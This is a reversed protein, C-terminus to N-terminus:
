EMYRCAYDQNSQVALTQLNLTQQDLWGTLDGWEEARPCPPPPTPASELPVEFYLQKGAIRFSGYYSLHGTSKRTQLDYAEFERMNSTGYDILLVSGVLGAFIASEGKSAYRQVNASDLVLIDMGNDEDSEVTTVVFDTYRFHRTKGLSQVKCSDTGPEGCAQPMETAAVAAVCQHVYVWSGEISASQLRLTDSKVAFHYSEEGVHLTDGQITLLVPDRDTYVVTDGFIQFAANEECSQGAVFWTGALAVPVTAQVAPADSKSGCACLFLTLLALGIKM